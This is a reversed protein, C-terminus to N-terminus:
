RRGVSRCVTRCERRGHRNTFCSRTCVRRILAEASSDVSQEEQTVEQDDGNVDVACSAGLSALGMGLLMLITAKMERGGFFFITRSSSFALPDVLSGARPALLYTKKMWGM